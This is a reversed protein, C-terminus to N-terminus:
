EEEQDRDSQELKRTDEAIAKGALESMRLGEVISRDYSFRLEPVIRLRMAKALLHRIYVHSEELAILAEKVAEDADDLFTVFIKAYALDRSVEVETVTCLGLRPDRVERQIIVAIEKQIQQAVRDPRSFERPM